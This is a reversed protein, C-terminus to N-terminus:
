LFEAAIIIGTGLLQTSWTAWTLIKKSTRATKYDKNLQEMIENRLDSAKMYLTMFLQRKQNGLDPTKIEETLEEIEEDEYPLQDEIKALRREFQPRNKEDLGAILNKASSVFGQCLLRLLLITDRVCLEFEQKEKKRSSFRERSIHREMKSNILKLGSLLIGELRFVPEVGRRWRKLALTEEVSEKWVLFGWSLFLLFLGISKVISRSSSLVSWESM